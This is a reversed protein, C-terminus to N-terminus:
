PLLGAGRLTLILALLQVATNMVAMIAGAYLSIGIPAVVLIAIADLLKAFSKKVM